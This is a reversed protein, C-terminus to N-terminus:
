IGFRYGLVLGAGFPMADVLPTDVLVQGIGARGDLEVFGPGARFAVGLVVAGALAPEIARQEATGSRDDISADVVVVGGAVGIHLGLDPALLPRWGVEALVPYTRYSRFTAHSERPLGQHMGMTVGTHIAGDVVPLRVLLSLEPGLALVDGYSWSSGLAPGVLLLARPRARLSLTETISLSGLHATVDVIGDSERVAPVYLSRLRRGAVDVNTAVLKGDPVSLEVGTPIVANGWADAATVVVTAGASGDAVVEGLPAMHLSVAKGPLLMVEASGLVRGDVGRVFVRASPRGRTRPLVWTVLRATDTGTQGEIRGGDVDVSAAGFPVINGGLDFVSLRVLLTPNEDATVALQPVVMDARVPSGGVIRLTASAVSLPAADLGLELTASQAPAAGVKCKLLFVGPALQVPADVQLVSSRALIHADGVPAGKMDVVFALVRATGSGDGVVVEDLPLLALRNFEPVGLDINKQSENGAIDVSVAVAGDTGPPVAIAVRADGDPGAEAPGFSDAGVLVTVKSGPKTSVTTQGKGWLPVSVFGVATEEGHEIRATVIAVHPFGDTPPTFRALWVGAGQRELGDITGTSVLLSPSAGDLLSGDDDRAEIRVTAYATEGIIVKAPEVQFRFTDVDVALPRPTEARATDALFLMTLVLAANQM